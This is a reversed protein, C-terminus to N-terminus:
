LCCECGLGKLPVLQETNKPNEFGERMLECMHRIGHFGLLGGGQVINVFYPTDAYWAALPGIALTKTESGRPLVRNLTQSASILILDGYHKQLWNFDGEEENSVADLYVTTVNIGHDLLLKALGLPRPHAKCDIEVPANQLVEKTRELEQECRTIEDDINLCPISLAYALKKLNKENEEYDFSMPLYLHPIGLRNATHEAGVRGSPYASIIYRGAALRFYDDTTQCDALCSVHMDAKSLLRVFDSEEDPSFDSGLYTIQKPDMDMPQLPKFMNERLLTDPVRGEKQTIPEMFCRVFIVKPYAAELSKYIYDLDCSLFRHTCVTFLFVFPPLQPLKQLVDIVGQITAQEVTGNLIDKEELLVYSFRDSANMEAATLVVGRMCNMACVYIQHAGPVQMGIHVINWTGHVPANFELGPAFPVPYSAEKIKMTAQEFLPDELVSKLM